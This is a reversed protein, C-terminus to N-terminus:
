YTEQPYVGAARGDVAARCARMLGILARWNRVVIEAVPGELTAGFMGELAAQPAIAAQFMTCTLAGSVVMIWKMRAVLWTM